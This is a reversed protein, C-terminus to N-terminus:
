IKSIVFPKLWNAGTYRLGRHVTDRGATTKLCCLELSQRPGLDVGEEGSWGELGPQEERSKSSRGLMAEIDGCSRLDAM